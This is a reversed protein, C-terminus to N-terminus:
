TFQWLAAANGGLIRAREAPSWFPVASRIIELEQDLTPRGAQARTGAPFGTGWLLRDPGFADSVRKVVDFTDTYPHQKTVSMTNLESVKVWVNPFRALRTLQAIDREATPAKLDIRALHDIAVRVQPFQELMTELRALQAPLLFFNLIAGLEGARRWLRRHAESTMWEERGPYYQPSLRVGSFGHERVLGELKDAVDAGLPDILGQARFRRPHEKVCRALYRNDWGYYIVQVLVAHTIAYRDMEALLAEATAAIAPPRFNPNTPHAFPFAAPDDSWVHVHTDILPPRPAAAAAAYAAALPAAALGGL